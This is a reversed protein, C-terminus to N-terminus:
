LIKNFTKLLLLPPAHNIFLPQFFLYLSPSQFFFLFLGYFISICLYLYLFLLLFDKFFPFVFFSLLIYFSHLSSLFSLSMSIPLYEFSFICLNLSPGPSLTNIPSIYVFVSFFYMFFSLFFM